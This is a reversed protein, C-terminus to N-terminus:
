SAHVTRGAAVSCRKRTGLARGSRRRARARARAVHLARRPHLGRPRRRGRKSPGAHDGLLRRTRARAHGRPLAAAAVCGDHAPGAGARATRPARPRTRWAAVPRSRLGCGLRRPLVGFRERAELAAAFSVKAVDLEGALMRGNLEEVDYLAIDLELGRREVRDELLAAYAFTDNPCTSIGLRVPTM